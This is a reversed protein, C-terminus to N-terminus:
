SLTIGTIAGNAVTITATTAYTGTVPVTLAQGNSVIADTANALPFPQFAGAAVAITASATKGAADKVTIPAAHTAVRQVANFLKFSVVGNIVSIQMAGGVSDDNNNVTHNDDADDIMTTLSSLTIHDLTNGTVSVTGNHPDTGTSLAVTVTGGDAVEATGDPPLQPAPNDISYGTIDIRTDRYGAGVGPERERLVVTNVFLPLDDSYLKGNVAYFGPTGDVLVEIDGATLGNITAEFPRGQVGAATSLTLANLAM